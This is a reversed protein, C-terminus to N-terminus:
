FTTNHTRTYKVEIGVVGIVQAYTDDADDHDRELKFVVTEGATLDTIHTGTMAASWGTAIKDYQADTRATINSEQTTGLTGDLADGEGLSFGAMDFSIGENSPGTANTVVMVVRYKIGTAAVIDSPVQWTILVDETGDGAFTRANVKDTGSTVTALADPATAGDIAYGIPIYETETTTYTSPAFTNPGSFGQPIGIIDFRTQVSNYQVIFMTPVTASCTYDVTNGGGNFETNSTLDFTVDVDQCLIIAQQGNSFESYDGSSDVFSAITVAGTSTIVNVRGMTIAPSTDGTADVAVDAGVKLPLDTLNAKLGDNGNLKNIAQLLTDTAAVTGAGSSYGTILAGITDVNGAHINTAGQDSTWDIHENAVFGTLDDHNFDSSVYTTNADTGGLNHFDNTVSGQLDALSNYYGSLDVTTADGSLSLTDGALSLDQIENSTSGDVEATLYGASTHDGWGYATNWNASNNTISAGWASGTSVAIGAGPYTMAGSDSDCVLGTGTVYTCYRGNTLTGENVSFATGTLNLLTGSATYTTNTDTYNGAHINTAGQDAAWDIFGIASGIQALTSEILSGGQALVATATTAPTTDDTQGTIDTVAFTGTGGGTGGGGFLQPRNQASISFSILLIAIFILKRM